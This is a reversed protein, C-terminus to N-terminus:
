VRISALVEHRWQWLIQPLRLQSEAVRHVALAASIKLVEVLVTAGAQVIVGTLVIAEALVITEAPVIAVSVRYVEVATLGVTIDVVTMVEVVEAPVVM